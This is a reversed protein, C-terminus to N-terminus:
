RRYKEKGITDILKNNMLEYAELADKKDWYYDINKPHIHRFCFKPYKTQIGGLEIIWHQNEKLKNYSIEDHILNSKLFRLFDTYKNYGTTCYENLIETPINVGDYDNGEKRIEKENSEIFDICIRVSNWFSFM